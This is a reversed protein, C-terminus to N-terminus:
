LTARPTLMLPVFAPWFTVTVVEPNPPVMSAEAIAGDTSQVGTPSDRDEPGSGGLMWLLCASIRPKRMLSVPVNEMSAKIM